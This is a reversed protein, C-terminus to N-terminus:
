FKLTTFVFFLRVLSNLDMIKTLVDGDDYHKKLLTYCIAVIRQLDATKPDFDKLQAKEELRIERKASRKERGHHKIFFRKDTSIANNSACFSALLLYRQFVPMVLYDPQQEVKPKANEKKADLVVTNTGLMEAMAKRCFAASFNLNRISTKDTKSAAEIEDHVRLVLKALRNPSICHIYAADVVFKVLSSEVEPLVECLLSICDDKDMIPFYFEPVPIQGITFNTANIAQWSREGLTLIRVLPNEQDIFNPFDFFANIASSTFSSVSEAHDLCIILGKCSDERLKHNLAEILDKITHITSRVRLLHLADGLSILLQKLSGDAYLFDCYVVKWENQQMEELMQGVTERLGSEQLGFCHLHSLCRAPSSLCGRVRGLLSPTM